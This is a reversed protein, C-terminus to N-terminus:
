LPLWQAADDPAMDDHLPEGRIIAAPEGGVRCYRGLIPQLCRGFGPVGILSSLAAKGGDATV